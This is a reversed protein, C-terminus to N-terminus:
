RSEGFLVGNPVRYFSVQPQLNHTRLTGNRPMQAETQHLASGRRVIPNGCACLLSNQFAALIMARSECIQSDLIGQGSANEGFGRRVKGRMM